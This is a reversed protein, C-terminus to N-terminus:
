QGETYGRAFSAFLSRALWAVPVVVAILVVGLAGVEPALGSTWLQWILTALVTNDPGRLVLAMTVERYSLLSIWLWANFTAGAMLPIVIRWLVRLRSSGCVRGSEELEHHIQVMAGNMTRSGYALYAITHAVVVIFVSGYIPLVARFVLALYALAIAFLIHPVAHPLFALADLVGRLRFRQRVVVWSVFISLVMSLTPALLVLVATNIFPRPGVVNPIQLYNALTLQSLAKLSPVQTHPLLSVWLLASVPLVFELALYFAVFALAPYKWRGLPLMKPRYGRGTVVAYRKTERIVRFYLFALLIGLAIMLLGYAGAVGYKPLGVNPTVAFFILSSLVFIRVPWGIIAPVEFVSVALMFMYVMVAAIAPWSVPINIRLLTRLRSAGSTYSAEELAPDMARFAASLMFFSAPVFSLGQVLAMGPINYISFIPQRVGLLSRAMGNLMGVEPSFLLIWGIARLFVPVLFGTILLVFIVQKGPLDTRNFLWVLPLTFLLTVTVTGGAFFVTNLLVPLFIPDAYARFFNALTLPGAQGPLGLRLSMLFVATVPAGVLLGIVGLIAYGIGHGKLEQTLSRGLGLRAIVPRVGTSRLAGGPVTVKAPM